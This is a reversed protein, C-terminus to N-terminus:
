SAFLGAKKFFAYSEHKNFLQRVLPAKGNLKRTKV